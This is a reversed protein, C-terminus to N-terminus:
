ETLVPDDIGLGGEATGRMHQTIKGAISMANGDGVVTKHGELMILDGEAPFIICVCCYSSFSSGRQGPTEAASGEGHEAERSQGCGNRRIGPWDSDLKARVGSDADGTPCGLVERGPSWSREWVARRNGNDAM